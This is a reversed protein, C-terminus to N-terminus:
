PSGGGTMATASGVMMWDLGLAAYPRLRATEFFSSRGSESDVEWRRPAADFDAGTAIILYATPFLQFRGMVAAGVIPQVRTSSSELQVFSPASTPSLSVVDIGTLLATELAVRKSSLPEIAVELRFPVLGFTANVGGRSLQAPLVYGAHIGVSPRMSAGLILRAVGDFAVSARDSALLRPGARAGVTIRASDRPRDTSPPVNSAPVPEPPSEPTSQPAPPREADLTVLPEIAGLIVHALTERFISTSDGRVVERRVPAVGPRGGDVTLVAGRDNSEVRIRAVIPGDPDAGPQVIELHLRGLLETLTAELEPDIGDTGSAELKVFRRTERHDDSAPSEAQVPGTSALWALALAACLLIRRGLTTSGTGASLERAAVAM